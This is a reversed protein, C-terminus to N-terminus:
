KAGPRRMAQLVHVLKDVDTLSGGDSNATRNYERVKSANDLAECLVPLLEDLPAANKSYNPLCKKLATIVEDADKFPRTTYYFHLLYWFEFCPTSLAVLLKNDLAKRKAREFTTHRDRDFVCWVEDYPTQSRLELAYDVVSIPASGCERGVVKIEAPLLRWRKRLGLFYAPETKGGECVILITKGPERSGKKRALSRENRGHPKPERAM